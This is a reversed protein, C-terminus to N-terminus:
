ICTKIGRALHRILLDFYFHIVGSASQSGRKSRVSECAVVENM